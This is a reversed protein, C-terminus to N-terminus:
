FVIKSKKKTSDNWGLTIDQLLFLQIGRRSLLMLSNMSALCDFTLWRHVHNPWRYLYLYSFHVNDLSNSLLSVVAAMRTHMIKRSERTTRISIRFKSLQNQVLRIKNCLVCCHKHLKSRKSCSEEHEENDKLCHACHFSSCHDLIFDVTVNVERCLISYWISKNQHFQKWVNFHVQFIKFILFRLSISFICFKTFIISTLRLVSFNNPSKIRLVVLKKWKM